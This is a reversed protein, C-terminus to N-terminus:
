LCIVYIKMSYEYYYVDSYRKMLFAHSSNQFSSGRDLSRVNSYEANTCMVLAVYYLKKFEIAYKTRIRHKERTM